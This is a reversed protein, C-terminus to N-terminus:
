IRPFGPHRHGQRHAPPATKKLSAPLPEGGTPVLFALANGPVVYGLVAGNHLPLIPLNLVAQLGQRLRIHQRRADPYPTCKARIIIIQRHSM